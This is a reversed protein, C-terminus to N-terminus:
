QDVDNLFRNLVLNQPKKVIRLYYQADLVICQEFFRKLDKHEVTYEECIANGHEDYDGTYNDIIYIYEQKAEAPQRFPKLTKLNMQNM